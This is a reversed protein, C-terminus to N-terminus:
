GESDGKSREVDLSASGKVKLRGQLRSRAGPEGRRRLHPCAGFSLCLVHRRLHRFLPMPPLLPASISFGGPSSRCLADGLRCGHHRHGFSRSSRCAGRRCSAARPLWRGLLLLFALVYRLEELVTFRGATTIGHEVAFNLGLPMLVMLFSFALLVIAAGIVFFIDLLYVAWAQRTDKIDYARNLGVRVSDIGAMASWITLLAALSLLDTRPVTLISMIEGALPRVLAEPAIGLLFDIAARAQDETGFFGAMATLFILFPFVSFVTRFAINGALPVAEDAFLRRFSEVALRYPTIHQPPHPPLDSM